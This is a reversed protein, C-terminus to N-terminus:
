KAALAQAFAPLLKLGWGGWQKSTSIRTWKVWSFPRGEKSGNWLFRHYIQQIRHLIGRPIWSLSMWYVLTAELVIKILVLRGVRSLFKHCWCSIRKEVKTVLWTWKAIKYGNPKLKFGLYKLGEMLNTAQYPFYQTALQSEQLTCDSLSITYKEINIEMRTTRCFLNLVENLSTLDRVSGNFFIFIDDVFLLHTLYFQDM